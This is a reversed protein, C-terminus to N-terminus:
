GKRDLCARVLEALAKTTFPKPLYTVDLNRPLGALAMQDSYGSTVIAKLGPKLGRLAEALELGSMGGPM